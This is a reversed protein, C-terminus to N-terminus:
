FHSPWIRLKLTDCRSLNDLEEYFTTIKKGLCIFDDLKPRSSKRTNFLAWSWVSRQTNFGSNVRLREILNAGWTRDTGFKSNEVKSIKLQGLRGFHSRSGFGWFDGEFRVQVWLKRARFDPTWKLSIWNELFMLLPEISKNYIIKM